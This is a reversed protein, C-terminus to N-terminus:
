ATSETTTISLGQWERAFDELALLGVCPM